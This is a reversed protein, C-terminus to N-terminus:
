LFVGEQMFRVRSQQALADAMSKLEVQSDPLAAALQDLWEPWLEEYTVQAMGELDIYIFVFQQPDFGHKRLSAPCSLHTLLSSKGLKREGVISRCQRTLIASYLTEIEQTRGWFYAPDTIPQRNFFPNDHHHHIHNM